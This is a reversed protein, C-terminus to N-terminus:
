AAAMPIRWLLATHGKQRQTNRACIRSWRYEGQWRRTSTMLQRLHVLNSVLLGSGMRNLRAKPKLGCSLGKLWRSQSCVWGRMTPTLGLTNAYFDRVERLRDTLLCIHQCRVVAAM